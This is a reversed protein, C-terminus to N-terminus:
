EDWLRRSAALQLVARDMAARMEAPETVAQDELEMSRDVAKVLASARRRAQEQVTRELSGDRPVLAYVVDCNLADAARRLTALQVTGNAESRELQVVTAQAVGMRAALQRTSMGLADRVARVWGMRPRAKLHEVSASDYRRDLRRRAAERLQGAEM